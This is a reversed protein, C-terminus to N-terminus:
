NTDYCLVISPVGKTGSATFGGSGPSGNFAAYKQFTFTAGSVSVNGVIAGVSNDSIPCLLNKTTTPQIAAPIGTLTMTTANSTGTISPIYLTVATGVKTWFCTGTPNVAYGTLTGTFSGTTAGGGAVSVGNVFVGTANITGAGQDGGTPAGLQLGGADSLTLLVTTYGSNMIELLGNIVRIYKSPTTGGNGTLLLNVGNTNNTDAIRLLGTAGSGTFNGVIDVATGTSSAAGNFTAADAGSIGTATLADGSTPANITVNGAAAFVVRDAGAFFRLDNTSAPQYITWGTQGSQNMQLLDLQTGAPGNAQFAPTSSATTVLIGIGSSSATISLTNGSTPAGITVNGAPAWTTSGGGSAVLTMVNTTAANQFFWQALAGQTFSLVTNTTANPATTNIITTGGPGAVSLPVGSTPANITVNGAATLVLRDAGAFFRLDSTSAPEYIAWQTQGTQQFQLAVLQTAAIGTINLAAATSSLNINAAFSGSPANITLPVGVPPSITLPGYYAQFQNAWSRM